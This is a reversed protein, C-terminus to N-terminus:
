VRASVKVALRVTMKVRVKVQGGLPPPPELQVEMALLLAQVATCMCDEDSTAQVLGGKSQTAKM